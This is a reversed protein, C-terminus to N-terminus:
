INISFVAHIAHIIAVNACVKQWASRGLRAASRARPRFTNCKEFFPLHRKRFLDARDGFSIIKTKYSICILHFIEEHRKM